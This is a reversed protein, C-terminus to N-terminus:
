PPKKNIYIFYVNLRIASPPFHIYSLISFHHAKAFRGWHICDPGPAPPRKQVGGGRGGGRACLLTANRSPTAFINMHSFGRECEATSIPIIEHCRMLRQLEKRTTRGEEDLFDRFASLVSEEPLSFRECLRGLAAEGYGDDRQSPWCAPSLVKLDDVLLNYAERSDATPGGKITVTAFLRESLSKVLAALFKSRDIRIIRESSQLVLNGFKMKRAADIAAESKPGPTREMKSILRITRSM